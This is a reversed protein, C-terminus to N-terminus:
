PQPTEDGGDGGLELPIRASRHISTYVATPHEHQSAPPQEWVVTGELEAQVRAAGLRAWAYSWNTGDTELFLLAEPNVGWVFAFIAGDANPKGSPLYRDIPTPTQRLVIKSRNLEQQASFRAALRKFQSLRLRPNQSPRVEFEISQFKLAGESPQWEFSDRQLRLRPNDIALFEHNLLFQRGGGGYLESTVIAIPRGSTGLRWIASDAIGRTVDSYRLLPKLQFTLERGDGEETAELTMDKLLQQMFELRAASSPRSADEEEVPQGGHLPPVLVL